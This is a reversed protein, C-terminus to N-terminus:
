VGYLDRAYRGGVSEDPAYQLLDGPQCDLSRCLEDLTNFDIRAVKRNLLNSITTRSLSTTDKIHQIRRKKERMVQELSNIIM